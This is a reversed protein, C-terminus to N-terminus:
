CPVAIIVMYMHAYQLVRKPEIPFAGMSGDDNGQVRQHHARIFPFCCSFFLLSQSHISMVISEDHVGPVSQARPRPQSLFVDCPCGDEVMKEAQSSLLLASYLCMQLIRLVVHFTSAREKTGFCRLADTQKIADIYAICSHHFM